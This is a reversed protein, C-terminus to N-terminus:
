EAAIAVIQRDHYTITVPTDRRLEPFPKQADAYFLREYPKQQDDVCLVRVARCRVGEVESEDPDLSLFSGSVTHSRGNLMTDVYKAYVRVPRVALGWGALLLCGLAISFAVTLPESRQAAFWVVAALLAASPILLALTRRRLQARIADSDASTYM